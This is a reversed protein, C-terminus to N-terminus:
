VKSYYHMRTQASQQVICMALLDNTEFKWNFYSFPFKMKDDIKMEDGFHIQFLFSPKRAFM